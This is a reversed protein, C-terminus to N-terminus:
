STMGGSLFQHIRSVIPPDVDGLSGALHERTIFESLWYWALTTKASAGRAKRLADMENKSVGGIVYMTRNTLYNSRDVPSLCRGLFYLSNQVIINIYNRLTSVTHDHQKEQYIDAVPWKRDDFDNDYTDLASICNDNMGDRLTCFAVAVCLSSLHALEQLFHSPTIKRAWESNRGYLKSQPYRRDPIDMQSYLPCSFKRFQLEDERDIDQENAYLMGWGGDLRGDCDIANSIIRSDSPEKLPNLSVVSELKVNSMGRDSGFSTPMKYPSNIVVNGSDVERDVFSNPNLSDPHHVLARPKIKDYHSCQMHFCSTHTTADMWQGMMIHVAKCSDSYRRYCFDARYIIVFCINVILMEIVKPLDKNKDTEKVTDFVVNFYHWRFLTFILVSMIGPLFCPYLVSGHLRFLLNLSYPGKRYEIM